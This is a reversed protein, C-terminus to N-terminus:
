TKLAGKQGLTNSDSNIEARQFVKLKPSNMKNMIEAFKDTKRKM